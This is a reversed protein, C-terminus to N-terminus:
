QPTHRCVPARVRPPELARAPVERRGRTTIGVPRTKRTARWKDGGRAFFARQKPYLWDRLKAVAGTLKAVAAAADDGQPQQLEPARREARTSLERLTEAASSPLIM